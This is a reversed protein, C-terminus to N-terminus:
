FSEGETHTLARARTHCEARCRTRSRRIEACRTGRIRGDQKGAPSTFHLPVASRIILRIVTVTLKGSLCNEDTPVTKSCQLDGASQILRPTICDTSSQSTSSGQCVGSTRDCIWLKYGCGKGTTEM